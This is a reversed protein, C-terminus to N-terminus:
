ERQAALDASRLSLLVRGIPEQHAYSMKQTCVPPEDVILVCPLTDSDKDDTTGKINRLEFSRERADYCQPWV